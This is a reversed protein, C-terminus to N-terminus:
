SRSWPIVSTRRLGRWATQQKHSFLVCQRDAQRRRRAQMIHSLRKIQARLRPLGVEPREFTGLHFTERAKMLPMIAQNYARCKSCPM